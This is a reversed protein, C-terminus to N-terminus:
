FIRSKELFMKKKSTGLLTEMQEEFVIHRRCIYTFFNIKCISLLGAMHLSQDFYKGLKAFVISM